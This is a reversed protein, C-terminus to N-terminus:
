EEGLGPAGDGHDGGDGAAALRRFARGCGRAVRTRQDLLHHRDAQKAIRPYSFFPQEGKFAHLGAVCAGIRHARVIAEGPGPGAPPPTEILSLQGPQHLVIAHVTTAGKGSESSVLRVCSRLHHHM